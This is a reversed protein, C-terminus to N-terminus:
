PAAASPSASPAPSPSAPVTSPMAHPSASAPLPSPSPSAQVSPSSSARSTGEDQAQAIERMRMALRRRQQRYQDEPLATAEDLVSALAAMREEIRALGQEVISNRLREVVAERETPQLRVRNLMRLYPKIGSRLMEGNSRGQELGPSSSARALPTSSKPSPTAKPTPAVMRRLSVSLWISALVAVFILLIRASQSRDGPPLPSNM